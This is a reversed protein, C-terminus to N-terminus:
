PAEEMREHRQFGGGGGRNAGGNRSTYPAPPFIGAVMTREHKENM